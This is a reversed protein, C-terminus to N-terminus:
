FERNRLLWVERAYLALSVFLFVFAILFINLVLREFHLSLITTVFVVMVFLVVCMGCAVLCLVCRSIARAHSKLYDLEIRQEPKGAGGDGSSLARILDQIRFLRTTMASILAAVAALIFAPAMADAIAQSIGSLASQDILMALGQV